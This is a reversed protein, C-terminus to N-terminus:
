ELGVPCQRDEFFEVARRRVGRANKVKQLIMLLMVAEKCKFFESRSLTGLTADRLGIKGHRDQMKKVQVWSLGAIGEVKMRQCYRELGIDAAREGRRQRRQLVLLGAIQDRREVLQRIDVSSQDGCLSAGPHEVFKLLDISKRICYLINRQYVIENFSQRCQTYIELTAQVSHIGIKLLCHQRLLICRAAETETSFGHSCGKHFRHDGIFHDLETTCRTCYVIGMSIRQSCRQIDVADLVPPYLEYVKISRWFCRVIRQCKGLLIAIHVVVRCGPECCIQCSGDFFHTRKCRVDFLIAYSMHIWVFDPRSQSRQEVSDLCIIQELTM